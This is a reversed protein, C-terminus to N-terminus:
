VSLADHTVIQVLVNKLKAVNDAAQLTALIDEKKPPKPRPAKVKKLKAM